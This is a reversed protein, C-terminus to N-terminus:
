FDDLRTQEEFPWGKWRIRFGMDMLDGILIGLETHSRKPRHNSVSPRTV